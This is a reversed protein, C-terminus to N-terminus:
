RLRSIKSPASRLTPTIPSRYRSSWGYGKTRIYCTIYIHDKLAQLKASKSELEALKRVVEAVSSWPPIDLYKKSEADMKAAEKLAAQRKEELAAAMAKLYSRYYGKDAPVADKAARRAAEILAIREDPSLQSYRTPRLIGDAGTAEQIFEM